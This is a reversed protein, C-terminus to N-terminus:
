ASPAVPPCQLEVKRGGLRSFAFFSSPTPSPTSSSAVLDPALALKAGFHDLDAGGAPDKRAIGLGALLLKGFGLHPRDGVLRMLPTDPDRGMGVAAAPDLRRDAGPDVRDLM